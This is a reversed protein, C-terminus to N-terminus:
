NSDQGYLQCQGRGAGKAAYLAEDAHTMATSLLWDREHDLVFFGGSLSLREAPVDTSTQTQFRTRLRVFWDTLGSSDIDVLLVVFEDGGFRAVLDSARVSERLVGALHRLVADGTAHGYEDNIPKFYDIDILGLAVATGRQALGAYHSFQSEFARRNLLGTLEDTESLTELQQQRRHIADAIRDLAPLMAETERLRVTLDTTPPEGNGLAQLKRQIANLDGTLWRVALSVLIVITAGVILITIGTVGAFSFYVDGLPDRIVRYRLTWDTGLVTISQSLVNERTLARGTTVIPVGQGDVLTVAENATTVEDLNAKLASTAVSLFLLGLRRDSDAIPQVIDFHALSPITRHVPTGPLRKGTTFAQMDALCDPGVRQSPADGLIKGEDTFLAVAVVGPLRRRISASWLEARSADPFLLLDMTEPEQSIRAAVGRYFAVLQGAVRAKDALSRALEQESHSRFYHVVASLVIAASLVIVASIVAAYVYAYFRLSRKM